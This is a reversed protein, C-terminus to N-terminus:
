EIRLAEMPDLRAARRAPLYAAILAVLALLSPVVVFTLPDRPSIGFLLSKLAGTLALAGAIGIIVGGMVPRAATRLVLSIIRGSDAGLAARVGLERTRATVSYALVGYIGVGALVLALTSFGSLLWASLRQSSFNEGLIEEMTRIEAIPQAPDLTRIIRRVPESLSLPSSQARVLFIMSTFSLHSYTYYATPMPERDISWERVDGVVGVIEGYPNEPEM